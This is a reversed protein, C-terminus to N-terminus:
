LSWSLLAVDFVAPKFPLEGALAGVLNVNARLAGARELNAVVIRTVQPDIGVVERAVDAYRWTLRGEGIGVELVRADAFHVFDHVYRTEIEEPDMRASAGWVTSM